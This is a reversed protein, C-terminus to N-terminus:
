YLLLNGLFIDLPCDAVIEIPAVTEKRIQRLNVIGLRLNGFLAKFLINLTYFPFVLWCQMGM